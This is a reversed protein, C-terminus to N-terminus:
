KEGSKKKKRAHRWLTSAPDVREEEEAKCTREGSDMNKKKEGEAWGVKQEGV